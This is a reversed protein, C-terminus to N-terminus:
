PEPVVKMFSEGNAPEGNPSEFRVNATKTLTVQTGPQLWLSISKFTSEDSSPEFAIKTDDDSIQIVSDIVEDDGVLDGPLVVIIEEIAELTTNATWVFPEDASPQDVAASQDRCGVIAAIALVAFVLIPYPKM